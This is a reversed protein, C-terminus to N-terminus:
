CIQNRQLGKTETLSKRRTSCCGHPSRMGTLKGRCSGDFHFLNGSTGFQCCDLPLQCVAQLCRRKVLMSPCLNWDQFMLHPQSPTGKPGKLDLALWSSICLFQHHRELSAQDRDHGFLNQIPTASSSLWRVVTSWNPAARLLSESFEQGESGGRGELVWIPSTHVFQSGGDGRALERRDLYM